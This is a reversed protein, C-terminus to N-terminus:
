VSGSIAYGAVLLDSRRLEERSGTLVSVAMAANAFHAFYSQLVFLYKGDATAVLFDRGLSNSHRHVDLLPLEVYGSYILVRNWWDLSPVTWVRDAPFPYRWSM